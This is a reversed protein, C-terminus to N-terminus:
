AQVCDNRRSLLMTLVLVRCHCGWWLMEVGGSIVSGGKKQPLPVAAGAVHGAVGGDGGGVDFGAV